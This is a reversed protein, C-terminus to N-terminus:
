VTSTFWLILAFKRASYRPIQIKDRFSLLNNINSSPPSSPCFIEDLMDFNRILRVASFQRCFKVQIWDQAKSFCGTNQLTATSTELVNATGNMVGSYHQSSQCYFGSLYSIYIYFYWGFLHLLLPFCKLSVKLPWWTVVQKQLTKYQQSHTHASHSLCTWSSWTM